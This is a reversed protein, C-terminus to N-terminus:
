PLDYAFLVVQNTPNIFAAYAKGDPAFDLSVDVSTEVGELVRPATWDKTDADIHVVVPQNSADRYMLFPVGLPSVKLSFYRGAAFDYALISGVQSWTKTGADYKKVRPHFSGSADDAAVVYINGKADVDMDFDRLNLNGAGPELVDDAITTWVGNVFKYISYTQVGGNKFVGLYLSDGVTRTVNLSAYKAPDRGDITKNVEWTSGNFASINLARRALVGGAADNTNFLMPHQNQPQIGLAIYTARVDTIGESGVSAWNGGKFHKVSAARSVSATYDPYAVLPEGAKNFTLSIDTGIEGASLGSQAGVYAWAGGSYKAVVGRSQDATEARRKFFVYPLGDKPNVKMVMSNTADTGLVGLRKWVFDAAKVINITYRANVNGETVVFDVPATYNQATEASKQPTGSVTVTANDTTTFRAVLATKNVERPMEINLTTNTVPDIVYDTLIVGPNDEAYFGFSLLKPEPVHPEPKPDKKCSAFLLGAFLVPLLYYKSLTRKM